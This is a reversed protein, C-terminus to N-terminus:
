ARRQRGREGMVLVQRIDGLQMVNTLQDVRDNRSPGSHKVSFLVFFPNLAAVSPDCDLRCLSVEVSTLCWTEDFWIEFDQSRDKTIYRM